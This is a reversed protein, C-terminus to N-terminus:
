IERGFIQYMEFNATKINHMARYTLSAIRTSETREKPYEGELKNILDKSHLFTTLQNLTENSFEYIKSRIDKSEQSHYISTKINRVRTETKKDVIEPWITKVITKDPSQSSWFYAESFLFAHNRISKLNSLYSKSALKERSIFHIINSLLFKIETTYDYYLGKFLLNKTEESIKQTERLIERQQLNISFSTKAIFGIDEPTTITFQNDLFENLQNQEIQSDLYNELKM